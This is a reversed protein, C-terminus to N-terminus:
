FEPCKAANRRMNLRHKQKQGKQKVDGNEDCQTDGSPQILVM